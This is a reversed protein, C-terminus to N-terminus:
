ITKLEKLPFVHQGEYFQAYYDACLLCDINILFSLLLIEEEHRSQLWNTKFRRNQLLQKLFVVAKANEDSGAVLIWPHCNEERTSVMFFSEYEKM